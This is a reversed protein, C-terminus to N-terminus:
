AFREWPVTALSKPKEVVGGMERQAAGEDLWVDTAPM